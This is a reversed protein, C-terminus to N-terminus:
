YMYMSYACLIHVAFWSCYLVVCVSLEICKWVNGQISIKGLDVSLTAVSVSLCQSDLHM